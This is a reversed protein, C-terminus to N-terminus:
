EGELLACVHVTVYDVEVEPIERDLLQRCEMLVRRVIERERQYAQLEDALASSMEVEPDGRHLRSLSMALHTAFQAANDETLQLDLEQSLRALVNETLWRALSTVQGSEELLDLRENFEEGVQQLHQEFNAQRVDQRL